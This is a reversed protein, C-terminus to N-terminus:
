GQVSSDGALSAGEKTADGEGAGGVPTAPDTAGGTSPAPAFACIKELRAEVQGKVAAAAAACHKDDVAELLEDLRATPDRLHLNSLVRTLAASSLVRAEGEAMPGIGSVVDELADVLYPLLQAPGENSTALLEKLGKEYLSQLSQLAKRARLELLKFAERHEALVKAKADLDAKGAEVKQELKKLRSREAAQAKALEELEADRGEAELVQCRNKAAEVEKLAAKRAAAAQATAQKEKESTAVAHSLVARVSVDSHLWGSVLEVHGAVLHPDAGQLDERLRTMESLACELVDPSASPGPALPATPPPPPPMTVKAQSVLPEQAKSVEAASGSVPAEPALPAM